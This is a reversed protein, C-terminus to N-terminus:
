APGGTRRGNVFLLGAVLMALVVVGVGTESPLLDVFWYLGGMGALVIAGVDSNLQSFLGALVFLSGISIIPVLWAPLDTLIPDRPGLPIRVTTLENHRDITFKVVWQTDEEGSPVTETIALTGLNTYSSNAHLTDSPDSKNYIEVWLTDTAENTDNYEATVTVTGSNNTRTANYAYGLEPDEPVAVVSGIRLNIIGGSSATYAGLIRQDGQENRVVLRYRTDQELNTTLSQDAGLDDGAVHTWNFGDGSTDYVSDNIARQVVLETEGAPFNGTSDEVTFTNEVSTTSTQLLYITSQDYISDLIVTRAHHNPADISVAFESGVPLGSLDVEGNSVTRNVITPATENDEYFTIEVDAQDVKGHDPTENRIELTAPVKFKFTQSDKGLTGYSDEVEVFWEWTGGESFSASLSATGNASVTATGEKSFSSESPAKTFYTVTVSDDQATAFDSDNVQIELNTSKSDLGKSGSPTATTNDVTPADANFLVGEDHLQAISDGLTANFTVNVRWKSVDQTAWSVTKNGSSTYTRSDQTVWSSGDWKQWEVTAEANQLTLNTFGKEVEDATHNASVYSGDVIWEIDDFYSTGSGTKELLKTSTIRDSTDIAIDTAQETGNVLVDANGSSWDFQITVNHWTNEPVPALDNTTGDADKYSLQSSSGLVDYGVRVQTGSNGGLIFDADADSTNLNVHYTVRDPKEPLGTRKARVTVGTGTDDLEHANSGSNVVASSVAGKSDASTTWEVLNGDEYGDFDSAVVSAATGTDNIGLKDITDAGSFDSDTTHKSAVDDAGAASVPVATAVLVSMVITLAFALQDRM